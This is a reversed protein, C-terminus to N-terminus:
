INNQYMIYKNLIPMCTSMKILLIINMDPHNLYSIYESKNRTYNFVKFQIDINTKKYLESLTMDRVGYKIYLLNSIIISCINNEFFGNGDLITDIDINDYNYLQNGYCSKLYVRRYGGCIETEKIKVINKTLLHLNAHINNYDFVVEDAFNAIINIIDLPVYVPLSKQLIFIEDM